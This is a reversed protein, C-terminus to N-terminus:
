FTSTPDIDILMRMKRPLFLSQKLKTLEHSLAYIKHGKVIIKFRYRDKIKAHGCPIAPYVTFSADLAAILNQCFLDAYSKTEQENPGSFILKALRTFPPFLFSKRGELERSFFHKYDCQAALQFVPHKELCTQIIVEGPIESRGARGAVQILLQFLYESARFDPIHLASDSNLIGVLTVSPFHLGKAIMQTGILVDAKGSRFQKFLADHSGKHRTTDADMRLIRINPLLAGLAREVKQTGIGKYELFGTQHCHPCTTPPPSLTFGCFHCCSLHEKKHFTLNTDCHSCRLRKAM